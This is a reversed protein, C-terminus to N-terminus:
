KIRSIFKRYFDAEPSDLLRQAALNVALPLMLWEYPMVHSQLKVALKIADAGGAMYRVVIESPIQVSAKLLVPGQDYAESVEHVTPFTYFDDVIRARGRNILDKINELVRIHPQLGYMGKGGALEIDAPHINYIVLGEMLPIKVVCGTLFIIEINEKNCFSFLRSGFEEPGLFEYDLCLVRFGLKKARQLCPAGEKTSILGAINVGPLQGARSAEMIKEAGTGNGSAILLVNIKRM